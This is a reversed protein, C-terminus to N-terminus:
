AARELVRTTTEATAVSEGTLYGLEWATAVYSEAEIVLVDTPDLPAPEDAAPGYLREGLHAYCEAHLPEGTVIEFPEDARIAKSCWVCPHRDLWAARREADRVRREALARREMNAIVRDRILLGGVHRDGEEAIIAAEAALVAPSPQQGFM